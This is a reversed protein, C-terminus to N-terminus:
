SPFTRGRCSLECYRIDPNADKALLVAIHKLILREPFTSFIECAMAVRFPSSKADSSTISLLEQLKLSTTWIHWQITEGIIFMM